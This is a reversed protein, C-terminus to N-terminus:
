QIAAAASPGTPSSSSAIALTPGGTATAPDAGGRLVIAHDVKPPQTTYASQTVGNAPAVLKQEVLWEGESVTAGIPVTVPFKGAYRGAVELTLQSRGLDVVASFPGPVVKLEQGPRVQDAAPIGNIKALLQWPLNYEKAISELSEGPRVVRAPGLRHETSYIVTGALQGLLKDVNEAEAPKLSPENHWPSLLQHAQALDGRELAAHIAPWSAAFSAIVPSGQAALVDNVAGISTPTSATLGETEATPRLSNPSQSAANALGLPDITAPDAVASPAGIAGGISLDTPAASQLNTQPAMVDVVSGPLTTVAPGSPIASPIPETAGIGNPLTVPPVANTQDPYHAAPINTPLGSAGSLSGTASASTGDSIAPVAPLEPILPVAPTASAVVEGTVTTVNALPPALADPAPTIDQSTAASTTPAVAVTTPWLPASSGDSAPASPTATLPPVGDSPQSQVMESDGPVPPAVPGENIKVYLFAGVVILITITVLPRISSM